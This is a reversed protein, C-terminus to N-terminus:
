SAERAYERVNIQGTVAATILASRLEQLHDVARHVREMLADAEGNDLALKDVIAQQEELPPLPM